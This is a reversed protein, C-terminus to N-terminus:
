LASVVGLWLPATEGDATPRDAEVGSPLSCANNMSGSCGWHKILRERSPVSGRALLTTSIRIAAACVRERELYESRLGSLYPVRGGMWKLPEPVTRGARM